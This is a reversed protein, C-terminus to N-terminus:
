ELLTINVRQREVPVEACVVGSYVIRLRSEPNSYYRMFFGINNTHSIYSEGSPDIVNVLVNPVPNGDTDRIWGSLVVLGSQELDREPVNSENDFEIKASHYKQYQFPMHIKSHTPESPDSGPGGSNDTIAWEYTRGTIFSYAEGNGFGIIAIDGDDAWIMVYASYDHALKYQEKENDYPYKVGYYKRGESEIYTPGESGKWTFTFPGEIVPVVDKRYYDPGVELIADRAIATLKRNRKRESMRDLNKKRATRDHSVKVPRISLGAYRYDSCINLNISDFYVMSARDDPLAKENRNERLRSMANSGWSRTGDYEIRNMALVQEDVATNTWYTGVQLNTANSDLRCGAAPLFLTNGNAWSKLLLGETGNINVWIRRCGTLLREWEVHTPIRWGKGLKVTAADYQPELPIHASTDRWAYNELSYIGKEATEGWAYYNGFEEPSTAGLNCTAWLVGDGMDVYDTKRAWLLVAVLAILPIYIIRAVKRISSPPRNMMKIRDQLSNLRFGCAIALAKVGVAHFLLSYQYEKRDYGKNLVHADVQFEHVACLDRRMQWVAPNFWQVFTIIDFILLEYSHGFAIHAKEHEVVATDELVSPDNPLVIDKMWSFPQVDPAAIVIRWKDSSETVRGCRIIDRVKFASIIRTGLIFIVGAAYIIGLILMTWNTMGPERGAAPVDLIETEAPYDTTYHEVLSPYAPAGMWTEGAPGNNCPYLIDPKPTNGSRSLSVVCLPIIYALLLSAGLVLRNFRHFTEKKLLYHYLIGFAATLVAVKLIYIFFAAM